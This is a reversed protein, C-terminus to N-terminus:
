TTAEIRDGGRVVRAWDLGFRALYKRLRDADNPVARQARSVGFLQRGADSLNQARRCVEVVRSLQVRDFLDLAALRDSPLLLNLLDAQEPAPMGSWSARLTKIEDEVIEVSIRGGASLTAM